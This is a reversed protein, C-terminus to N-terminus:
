FDYKIGITNTIQSTELDIMDVHRFRNDNRDGANQGLTIVAVM